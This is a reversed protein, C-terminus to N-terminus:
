VSDSWIHTFWQKHSALHICLACACVCVCVWIHGVHIAWKPHEACKESSADTYLDMWSPLIRHRSRSQNSGFTNAIFYRTATNNKPQQDGRLRTVRHWLKDNQPFSAFSHTFAREFQTIMWWLYMFSHQICTHSPFFVMLLLMVNLVVSDNRQMPTLPSSNKRKTMDIRHISRAYMTYIKRHMNSHQTNPISSSKFWRKIETALLCNIFRPLVQRELMSIELGHVIWKM